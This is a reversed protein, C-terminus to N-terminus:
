GPGAATGTETSASAQSSRTATSGSPEGASPANAANGGNRRGRGRGGRKPREVPTETATKDGTPQSPTTAVKKTEKRELVQVTGQAVSIPSAAIAKVLADHDAFDLYAFGKRKDIEVFTVTGFAEMAQKLLNETVGQSPNAHKVFARTAGATIQPPAAAGGKKQSSGNAKGSSTTKNTAAKPGTPPAPTSPMSPTSAGGSVVADDKRKLIVPAAILTAKTASNDTNSAPTEKTKGKANDNQKGSKSGRSRRSGEGSQAKPATPASPPAAPSAQSSSSTAASAPEKIEKDKVNDTKSAAEAKAADQRARRHASGPSLGLDRQLIKAAAAINARRSKPAAEETTKQSAIQSAVNKAAEAAEQAAAAKKTLLKVPEKAKDKEKEKEAAKDAKSEKGKKKPEEKAKGGQSEHRGHKGSKTATTDKSKNAKKEKLYEILPTTTIKTDGKSTDEAAQEADGEKTVPEETLSALFAIFDPDQSITGQRTDIRRKTSPVKQYTSNELYPPGVLAADNMTHKADEWTLRQVTEALTTVDELKLVHLYCRAPTSPYSPDQSISGDHFRSWVVKGNGDKWEDGLIAWFEDATMGPPLRRILVKKGQTPTKSKTTKGSTQGTSVPLVGNTKNPTASSTM